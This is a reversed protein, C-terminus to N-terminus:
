NAPAPYRREFEACLRDLRDINERLLQVHMSRSHVSWEQRAADAIKDGHMAIVARIEAYQFDGLDM